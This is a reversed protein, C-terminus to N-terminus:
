GRKHQAAATVFAQFLKQSPEDERWAVEPHWQVGIMWRSSSEDEVAEVLGDAAHAVVRLGRGVSAVGQHHHSNVKITELNGIIKAYRSNAKVSVAHSRHERVGEQQHKIASPLEAVIDQLLTGGRAVNWAQMGYCIALLPLGRAEVHNLLLMDTTDRRPHVSGLWRRPNQNYYAPDVDSASGPLVVGDLRGAASAIYDEDPILSLHVPIGGAAAIAESYEPALYFRGREVDHRMTIGILPKDNM